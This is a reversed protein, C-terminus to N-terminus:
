KGKYIRGGGMVRFDDHSNGNGTVTGKKRTDLMLDEAEAEAPLTDTIVDHDRHPLFQVKRVVVIIMALTYLLSALTRSGLFAFHYRYRFALNDYLTCSGSGDCGSSWLLCCTDVIKGFLMPGLFWGLLTGMFANLGISLPKDAESVSRVTVVFSPLIMLTACFAGLFNVAAYPYLMQCDGTCFGPSAEPKGLAAEGASGSTSTMMSSGPSSTTMTTNVCSCEYFNSGQSSTCGAHCPSFYTVGDAGCTPFFRTDDCHCNPRCSTMMAGAAAAADSQNYPNTLSAGNSLGKSIYPQDCGVFLGIVIFIISLLNSGIVFKLCTRPSLKLRSTVIGGMLTGGAASLINLVGLIINAKWAPIMFQTELYKPLFSIMGSIGFLVSCTGMVMCVYVPNRALRLMSRLFEKMDHCYKRGKAARKRAAELRRLHPQPRLRRPLFLTPISALIGLFGFVLFGLWWAGVWRPDRPSMTTDELTLYMKSFLGGLTFALVPGFMSVCSVIGLYLTTKTKPVNDDVYTSVFPHRPSKGFGQFVMGLGIFTVAMWKKDESMAGTPRQKGVDGCGDSGNIGGYLGGVESSLNGGAVVTCLYEEFPRAGGGGRSVNGGSMIDYGRSSAVSSGSFNGSGSLLGSGSLNANISLFDGGGSGSIDGGNGTGTETPHPVPPLSPLSAFFPLTCVLGSLGFLLTSFSIARLIHVRRALYSMFLTTLLYGLDNCSLLVGSVSSSFGFQRELTTIQSNIYMSLTSTSLGAFCLAATVYKIDACRQLFSPRCQGLGCYIEEEEGEEEEGEEERWKWAGNRGTAEERNDHRGNTVGGGDKKAMM